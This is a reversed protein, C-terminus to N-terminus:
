ARVSGCYSSHFGVGDCCKVKVIPLPVSLKRRIDECRLKVEFCVQSLQLETTDGDGSDISNVLKVIELWGAHAERNM